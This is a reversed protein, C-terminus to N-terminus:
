PALTHALALGTYVAALGTAVTATINLTAHLHAGSRILRLTEYSLTSYTTFAGCLGTGAAAMAPGGAPLAVLFGLVFSGVTNVTLTGWPFLSDHRAQVARDLLYRAPAGLAAGAAVLLFTM